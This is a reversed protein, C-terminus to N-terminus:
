MGNRRAIFATLDADADEAFEFATAKDDGLVQRLKVVHSMECALVSAASTREGAQSLQAAFGIYANVAQMELAVALFLVDEGTSITPLEYTSPTEPVVGGLKLILEGARELHATHHGLFLMAVALAQDMLLPAGATYAYIAADELLYQTGLIELDRLVADDKGSSGGLGGVSGGGSGGAGGLGASQGLCSLLPLASLGAGFQLLARRRAPLILSSSSDHKM